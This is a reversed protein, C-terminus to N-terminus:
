YTTWGGDTAYSGGTLNSADETLLFLIPGAQEWATAGRHGEEAIQLISQSKAGAMSSGAGKGKMYKVFEYAREVMPTDTQAM